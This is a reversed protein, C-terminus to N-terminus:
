IRRGSFIIILGLGGDELEDRICIGLGTLNDM